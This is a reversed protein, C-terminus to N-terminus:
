LDKKAEKAAKAEKAKLSEARHHWVRAEQRNKRVGLGRDYLRSLSEMAEKAGLDAAKQYWRRAEVYDLRGGRGFEYLAGLDVMAYRDGSAAAKEYLARADAYEKRVQAVRGAQLVFRTVDPFRNAAEKCARNAKDAKIADDDDDGATRSHDNAVLSNTLRDCDNAFSLGELRTRAEASHTNDPFNTLFSEFLRPDKSDRITTWISETPNTLKQPPPRPAPPAVASGLYIAKSSLSGYVFPQQKRNTEALVEDRVRRFVSSIELGPTGLNKLLAATYPSNRGNGDKATTGDKAAYAVLVNTTPEVRAFGREVSRTLKSRAMKVAMPNDRCADLIVLGLANARSVSQMLTKLSIAENPVDFDTKLDADTPILWNEGALEMGHGAYYILGIDAGQVKVNFSRIAQRFESFNGNLVKIVSFGLRELSGAMDSADNTPNPLATANVYDGNGIVLAVRTEARLISPLGLLVITLAAAIAIRLGNPM